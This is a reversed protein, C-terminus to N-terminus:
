KSQPHKWHIHLQFFKVVPCLIIRPLTNEGEPATIKDPIRYIAAKVAPDRQIHLDIMRLRPSQRQRAAHNIGKGSGVSNEALLFIGLSRIIGIRIKHLSKIVRLEAAGISRYGGLSLCQRIIFRNVTLGKPYHAARGVTPGSIVSSGNVQSHFTGSLQFITPFPRGGAVIVVHVPVPCGGFPHPESLAATKFYRLTSDHEGMM